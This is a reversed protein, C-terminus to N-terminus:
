PAESKPPNFIKRAKDVADWKPAPLLETRNKVNVAEIKMRNEIDWVLKKTTM